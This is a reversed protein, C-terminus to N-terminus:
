LGLSDEAQQLVLSRLAAKEVGIVALAHLSKYHFAAIKQLTRLCYATPCLRNRVTAGRNVMLHLLDM